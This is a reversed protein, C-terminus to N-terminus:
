PLSRGSVPKVSQWTGLCFYSDIYQRYAVGGVITIESICKSCIVVSSVTMYHAHSQSHQM